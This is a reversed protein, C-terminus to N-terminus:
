KGRVPIPAVKQGGDRPRVGSEPLPRFAREKRPLDPPVAVRRVSRRALPQVAGNGGQRHLIRGQEGGRQEELPRLATELLLNPRAGEQLPHQQPLRALPHRHPDHRVEGSDRRPHVVGHPRFGGRVQRLRRRYAEQQLLQVPPYAGEAGQAAAHLDVGM